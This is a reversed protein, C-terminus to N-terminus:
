INEIKELAEKLYNLIEKDETKERDFEKISFIEDLVSNEKCYGNEKSVIVFNKSESNFIEKKEELMESVPIVKVDTELLYKVEEAISEATERIRKIEDEKLFNYFEEWIEDNENYIKIFNYLKEVTMQEMLSNLDSIINSFDNSYYESIINKQNEKYRQYANEFIEEKEKESLINEILEEKNLLLMETAIVGLQNSKKLYDKKM